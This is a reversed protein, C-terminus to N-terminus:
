VRTGIKGIKSVKKYCKEHTNKINFKVKTYVIVWKDYEYKILKNLIVNIHTTAIYLVVPKSLNPLLVFIRPM